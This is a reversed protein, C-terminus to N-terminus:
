DELVRYADQWRSLPSQLSTLKGVDAHRRALLGCVHQWSSQSSSCSFIM